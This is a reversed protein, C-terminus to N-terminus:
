EAKTAVDGIHQNARERLKYEDFYKESSAMTDVGEANETSGVSEVTNTNEVNKASKVSDMEVNKSAEVSEVIESSEVSEVTVNSEESEVVEGSEASELKKDYGRQLSEVDTPSRSRKNNGQDSITNTATKFYPSPLRSLM